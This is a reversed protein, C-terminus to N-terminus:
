NSSELFISMRILVISFFVLLPPISRIEKMKRTYHTLNENKLILFIFEATERRDRVVVEFNFYWIFQLVQVLIIPNWHETM